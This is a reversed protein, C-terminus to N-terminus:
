DEKVIRSKELISNLKFSIYDKSTSLLDNMDDSSVQYYKGDRKLQLFHSDPNEIIIEYGLYKIYNELGDIALEDCKNKEFMENIANLQREQSSIFADFRKMSDKGPPVGLLEGLTVNLVKAIELAIRTNVERQGSEYRKISMISIGTKNALEQQTMGKEKRFKKINEALENM